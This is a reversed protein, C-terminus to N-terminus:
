SPRLHLLFEVNGSAGTIPSPISALPTLGVERAAASVKEVVRAHVAPDRVVGKGVEGRGAEFQPKVLAVIDAGPAAIRHVAPFIQRLSIFSVDITVVDMPCPLDAPTLFRANFREVVVVRPDNRLTWDLQGHGVDLAVV